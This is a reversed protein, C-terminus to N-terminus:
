GIPNTGLWGLWGSWGQSYAFAAQVWNTESDKDEYTDISLTRRNYMKVRNYKGDPGIFWNNVDTLYDYVFVELINRVVNMARNATDPRESSKVIEMANWEEEPPVVLMRPDVQIRRVGTEDFFRRYQSLAQRLSLVSLTAPTPVLGGLLNSQLTAVNKTNPHAASFLPVGDYGNTTFGSNWINAILVEITQRASFGLDRGRDNAMNVLMDRIAQESFGIRLKFDNVTYRISLGPTFQDDSAPVFEPTQVFLGVGAATFDEEFAKSTSEVKVMKSYQQMKENFSNMIVSKIGPFLLRQFQARSNAM